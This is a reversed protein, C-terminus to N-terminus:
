SGSAAWAGVAMLLPVTPIPVGVQVAFVWAFVILPGHRLLTEIAIDM